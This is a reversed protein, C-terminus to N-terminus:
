GGVMPFAYFVRMLSVLRCLRVVVRVMPRTPRMRRVIARMSADATVNTPMPTVHPMMGVTLTTVM